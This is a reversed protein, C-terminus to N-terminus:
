LAGGNRWKDIEAQTEDQMTAHIFGGVCVIIGLIGFILSTIFQATTM